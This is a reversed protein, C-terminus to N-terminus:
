CQLRANCIVTRARRENSAARADQKTTLKVKDEVADGSELQAVIAQAREKYRDRDDEQDAVTTARALDKLAQFYNRQAQYIMSRLAYFRHDKKHYRISKKVTKLALDYDQDYFHQKANKFLYYPNKNRAREAKKAFLQAKGEEGQNTYLRELNSAALNNKDSIKLAQLYSAEALQYDKQAKQLAGYNVWMDANEPFYSISLKLYHEATELDNERLADVGKNSYMLAASQQKSIVRQPYAFNYDEIALDLIQTDGGVKMIGNLHRYFVFDEDGSEGWSGPLDVQNAEITIGLSDALEIILLTFSLCNGLKEELAHSPILNAKLDYKLGFGDPRILWHGLEKAARNKSSFNGFKNKVENKFDEPIFFLQKLHDPHDDSLTDKYNVVHSFRPDTSRVQTTASCAQLLLSLLLLVTLRFDLLVVRKVLM